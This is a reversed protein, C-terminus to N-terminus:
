CFKPPNWKSGTFASLAIALHPPALLSTSTPVILSITYPDLPLSIVSSAGCAENHDHGFPNHGDADDSHGHEAPVDHHHGLDSHHELLHGVVQPVHAWEHLEMANFGYLATTLLFLLQRMPRSHIRIFRVVTTDESMNHCHLGRECNVTARKTGGKVGRGQGARRWTLSPRPPLAPCSLPHIWFFM